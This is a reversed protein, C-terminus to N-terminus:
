QEIGTDDDMFARGDVGDLGELTDLQEELWQMVAHATHYNLLVKNHITRVITRQDEGEPVLEPGLSGDGAVLCEAFAPAKDSETYFNLEIEGRPNIGGWVGHAYKLRAETEEKYEYRVRQPLSKGHKM